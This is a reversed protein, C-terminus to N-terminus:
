KRTQGKRHCFHARTTSATNSTPRGHTSFRRPATAATRRPRVHRGFVCHDVGTRARGRADACTRARGRVDARTRARGRVCAAAPPPRDPPAPRAASPHRFAAPRYPPRTPRFNVTPPLAPAPKRFPFEASPAAATAILTGGISNDVWRLLSAFMDVSRVVVCLYDRTRASRIQGCKHQLDHGGARDGGM